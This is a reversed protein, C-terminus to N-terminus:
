EQEDTRFEIDYNIIFEIEEDTLSYLKGIERDLKDILPKSKRLKYEKFSSINNYNANKIIANKEIDQLYEKYLNNIIELEKDSINEIPLSLIEIEYKKLNLTDSYLQQIWYFLNSSLVTGLLNQYKKYVLIEKEASSNTPYNTVVNYYRGGAARYYVGKGNEDLIDIVNKNKNFIKKLIEQEIKEGMKPIRGYKLFEISDIYRLNEIVQEISTNEYRKNVKTTYLKSIREGNSSGIIIAVRQDANPFIKRPRNSYTSIKLENFKNKLMKHLSSMGDSSTVAMPIIYGYKSKTKLINISLDIFLCFTDISGKTKMTGDLGTKASEFKNSVYKKIKLPLKAGYPPNGIVCDFGKKDGKFVEPFELEWHFFRNEEALKVWESFNLYKKEITELDSSVIQDYDEKKVSGKKDNMQMALYIDWKCKVDKLHGLIKEYYFKEKEHVQEATEEPMKKLMLFQEDIYSMLNAITMDFLKRNQNKAINDGLTNDIEARTTGVLSNGSKLHHDIFSLPRDKSASILWLSLKGLQVALNNIDVGYINHIVAMRIWYSYKSIDTDEMVKFKINHHLFNFVKAAVHYAANVLFHGSGMANDLIYIELIKEKVNKIIDEYLKEQLAAKLSPNHKQEIENIKSKIEVKIEELVEDMKVDVTNKVIYEVIPEPTYYAGTEKRELADESLYIEGTKIIVDTKKITTKSALTYTVKSDKNRKVIDESAIFMNYDLIGEYLTGFSRTSLDTFDIKELIQENKEYYGLKKLVKILHSNDIPYKGLYEKGQNSFLGGNYAEVKLDVGEYGGDIWTFLKEIKEWLDTSKSEIEEKVDSIMKSMSTAYYESKEIPLLGKAEAYIIFLIRYLVIISDSYLNKSEEENFQEKGMAEKFGMGIGSLIDEMKCKLEKEIKKIANESEEFILELNSKYNESNSILNKNSIFLELLQISFDKEETALFNSIDVELYTEFYNATDLRYIRWIYGDTLIALKFKNSKAYEVVKLDQYKGFEMVLPFVEKIFDLAIIKEGIQNYVEIIGDIKKTQYFDFARIVESYVLEKFKEETFSDSKERPIDELIHFVYLLDDIRESTDKTIKKEKWRELFTNSFFGNNKYFM